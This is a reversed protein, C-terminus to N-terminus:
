FSQWTKASPRVPLSIVGMSAFTFAGSGPAPIVL